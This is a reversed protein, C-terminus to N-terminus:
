FRKQLNPLEKFIKEEGTLRRTTFIDCSNIKKEFYLFKKWNDWKASIIKGNIKNKESILQLCLKVPDSFSDGGLKSIKKLFYYHAKGIKRPGAKLKIKTFNTNLTGPAISNITINEKKDLEKSLNESLSVIGAKATAYSSFMPFPSTGGGGSMQVIRGYKNKKMIPLVNQYFHLSGFFNINFAKKWVKLSINEFKGMPGNVAANNILIDIKNHKSKVMKVFNKVQTYNSIDVKHTFFSKISIKKNLLNKKLIKIKKKNNSVGYIFIDKELLKLLINYGLGSTCGTLICVKKKKLKLM